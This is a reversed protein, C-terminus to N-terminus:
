ENYGHMKRRKVKQGFEGPTELDRGVESEKRSNRLTQQREDWKKLYMKGAQISLWRGHLDSGDLATAAAVAKPSQFLVECYGKSRGSDNWCPFSVNMITGCPALFDRVDSEKTEYNLGFVRVSLPESTRKDPAVTQFASEGPRNSALKAIAQERLSDSHRYPCTEGKRCKGKTKWNICDKESSPRDIKEKISIPEIGEHSFLCTEGMKCKGKKFDWCKRPKPSASVARQDLVGGNGHHVFKCNDGYPCRKHIWLFCIDPVEKEDKAEHKYASLYLTHSKKSTETRGGKVIGLSIAAAASDVNEMVCFAYGKHKPKSDGGIAQDDNDYTFVVEQVVDAGVSGEILRKISAQSFNLPVRSVFVKRDDEVHEVVISTPELLKVMDDNKQSATARTAPKATQRFRALTRTSEPAV